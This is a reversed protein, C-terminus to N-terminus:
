GQGAPVRRRLGTEPDWSAHRAGRLRMRLGEAAATWVDGELRPDRMRRAGFRPRADLELRLRAAGEVVHIRRLLVLRDPRAPMALADRCEIVSDASVWRNVWILTGEEYAGGWVHWDDAPAVTFHEAGGIMASFVADSHWRPACLWVIGGEPDVLAGREGDAIVGYERLVWPPCAPDPVATPAQARDKMSSPTKGVLAAPFRVARM